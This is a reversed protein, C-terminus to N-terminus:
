RCRHPHSTLHAPAIVAVFIDGSPPTRTPRATVHVPPEPHATELILNFFWYLYFFGRAPHIVAM